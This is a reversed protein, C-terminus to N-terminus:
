IAFIFLDIKKAIDLYNLRIRDICHEDERM